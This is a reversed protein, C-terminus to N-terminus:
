KSAEEGDQPHLKIGHKTFEAVNELMEQESIEAITIGKNNFEGDLGFNANDAYGDFDASFVEVDYDVDFDKGEYHWTKQMYYHGLSVINKINVNLEEFIERKIATVSDEGPDIGGGSLSYKYKGNEHALVIYKDGKKVAAYAKMFPKGAKYLEYAYKAKKNYYEDMNKEKYVNVSSYVVARVNQLWKKYKCIKQV